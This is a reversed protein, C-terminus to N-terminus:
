NDLLSYTNFLTELKKSYERVLTDARMELLDSMKEIAKNPNDLGTIKVIEGNIYYGSEVLKHYKKFNEISKMEGFYQNYKDKYEEFREELVKLFGDMYDHSVSSKSFNVVTKRGIDLPLVWFNALCHYKGFWVKRMDPTCMKRNTIRKYSNMTDGADEGM